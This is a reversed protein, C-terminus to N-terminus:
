IWRGSSHPNHAFILKVKSKVLFKFYKNFLSKVVGESDRNKLYNRNIEFLNGLNTADYNSILVPIQRGNLNITEIDVTAFQKFKRNNNEM